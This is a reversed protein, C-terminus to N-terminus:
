KDGWEITARKKNILEEATNNGFWSRDVSVAIKTGWAMFTSKKKYLWSRFSGYEKPKEEIRVILRMQELIDNTTRFSIDFDHGLVDHVLWCAISRQTGLNPAWLDAFWGGSRGDFKFGAKVNITMVGIDTWVKVWTDQTVQYWRDRLPMLIIKGCQFRFVKVKGLSRFMKSKPNM